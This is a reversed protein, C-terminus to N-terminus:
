DHALRFGFGKDIKSAIFNTRYSSIAAGVTYNWSGGRVVRRKCNGSNWAEGNDPAGDYSDNWCDQTWEMVNGSMDYLGMHNAQKQAVPHTKSNSNGSIWAVSSGNDGGCHKEDKAGSRCAYEWEAETPLRFRQGTQQNLKKLFNQVDNWSVSEVPCDDCGKFHSPNSGMVTLWQKQTVENRSLKFAKISVDHIPIQWFDYKERSGMQFNGAPISIMQHSINNIKLQQQNSRNLAEKDRTEIHNEVNAILRSKDLSIGNKNPLTFYFEGLTQDYVGPSQTGNSEDYVGQRAMKFVKSLAAGSENMSTLLHKTFLGNKEKKNDSAVAGAETAYAVFLGKANGIPALGGSGSRGFPNNRCADLAIINLRNGSKKIKNTVYDLALAEYEVDDAEDMISDVAVLYNRGEVNVGHGAFFYMGVGGRSLKQSFKKVLKKMDRKTANEKYIVEFGRSKLAQRMSRADNVPNELKGMKIYNNNGIVLAVRQENKMKKLHLGREAHLPQFVLMLLTFFLLNRM